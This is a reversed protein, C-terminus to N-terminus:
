CCLNRRPLLHLRVQSHVELEKLSRNLLAGDECGLKVFHSPHFTLRQDFARALKGAFELHKKIEEKNPLEEFDWETCWPFITSSM